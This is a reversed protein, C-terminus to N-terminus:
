VKVAFISYNFYSNVFEYKKSEPLIKSFNFLKHKFNTKKTKFPM